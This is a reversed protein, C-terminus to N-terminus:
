SRGEGIVWLWLDGLAAGETPVVPLGAACSLSLEHTFRACIDDPGKLLGSTGTNQTKSWKLIWDFISIKYFDEDEIFICLSKANQTNKPPDHSMQPGHTALFRCEPRKNPSQSPVSFGHALRLGPCGTQWICEFRLARSHLYGPFHVLSCSVAAALGPKWLLNSRVWQVLTGM